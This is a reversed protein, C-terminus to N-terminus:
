RFMDMVIHNWAYYAGVIIFVIGTARRMYYEIRSVKQFWKTLSQAGFAIGVAFVLVPLGTGLGYVFPLATGINTQLSLPILSGFFLAASIPCFSLAFLFGLAFPGTVGGHRALSQQRESSLTFGSINIRLIDLLFLGAIILVPGLLRNM